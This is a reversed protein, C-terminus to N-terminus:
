SISKFIIFYCWLTWVKTDLTIIQNSAPFSERMDVKQSMHSSNIQFSKKILNHPFSLKCYFSRRKSAIKPIFWCSNNWVSAMAGVLFGNAWNEVWGGFANSVAHTAFLTQLFLSGNEFVGTSGQRDDSICESSSLVYRSRKPFCCRVQAVCILKNSNFLCDSFAM